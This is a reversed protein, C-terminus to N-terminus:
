IELSVSQRGGCNKFEEKSSKDCYNIQKENKSSSKAIVCGNQGLSFNSRRLKRVFLYYGDRVASFMLEVLQAWAEFTDTPSHAAGDLFVCETTLSSAMEAFFDAKFGFPRRAVQEAGFQMSLRRIKETNALNSLVDTLYNRFQVALRTWNEEGLNVCFTAFDARNHVMRNLVRSSPDVRSKEICSLIRLNSVIQQAQNSIRKGSTNMSDSMESASDSLKRKVFNHQGSSKPVALHSPSPNGSSKPTLYINKKDNNLNISHRSVSESRGMLGASRSPSSAM